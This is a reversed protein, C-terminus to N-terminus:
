RWISHKRRAFLVLVGAVTTGGAAPVVMGLGFPLSPRPIYQALSHENGDWWGPQENILLSVSGDSESYTRIVVKDSDEGGRHMVEGYRTGGDAIPQGLLGPEGRWVVSDDAISDLHIVTEVTTDVTAEQSGELVRVDISTPSRDMAAQPKIHVSSPIEGGPVVADVELTGGDARIEGDDLKEGVVAFVRDGTATEARVTAPDDRGQELARISFSQVFQSGTTDTVTARVFHEGEGNTTFSAKDGSVDSQITQGDPGFVEVSQLSDYSSDDGPRMTMSVTEDAGPSMTNLDIARVDPISGAFNPNTASLRDDLVGGAGGGLVRLDFAAPDSDGIPYGDIVLQNSLGLSGTSEVSWYEDPIEESSGDSWHLEPQLTDTDIGSPLPGYEANLEGDSIDIADAVEDSDPPELTEISRVATEMHGVETELEDNSLDSADQIEDFESRELYRDEAGPVTEVLPRHTGYRAELQTRNLEDFRQDYESQIENITENLQRNEALQRLQNLSDIGQIPLEDTRYTQITVNESPVDEQFPAGLDFTGNYDGNAATRLDDFSPGTIDPLVTGDARYAQISARQVGTQMRLTFMGNEDTTTTRREFLGSEINQQLEQARENLEDATTNLEDALASWQDEADGVQFTYAREPSGEPYVRYIGPSLHTSIAHYDEEARAVQKVYFEEETDITETDVVGNGPGYQELVVTGETVAGPHSNDIPGEPFFRNEDTADWLSIIVEQNSELQVRPDDVEESLIDTGGSGWDNEQHVLPYTGDIDSTFKDTDLMGDDGYQDEFTQWEEPLEVNQADELLEEAEAQKDEITDNIAGTNVGVGGVTANPVPEVNQGVVQGSIANGGADVQDLYLERGSDGDGANMEFNGAFQEFERELQWSDPEETGVEWVKAQMTGGDYRFRFQTWQGNFDNNITNEPAPENFSTSLYSEGSEFDNFLMARSDNGSTIGLRVKTYAATGDGVPKYTGSIELNNGTDFEPGASWVTRSDNFPGANPLNDTVRLSHNGWYSDTTIDMNSENGSTWGDYTGDEFDDIYSANDTATQISLASSSATSLSSSIDATSSSATATGSDLGGALAMTPLSVVMLFAFLLPLIQGRVRSWRSHTARPNSKDQPM